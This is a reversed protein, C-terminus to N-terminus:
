SGDEEGVGVQSSNTAVAGERIELLEFPIYRSRMESNLEVHPVGHLTRSNVFRMHIALHQFQHNRLLRDPRDKRM